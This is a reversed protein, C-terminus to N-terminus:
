NILKKILKKPTSPEAFGCSLLGCRGRGGGFRDFLRRDPQGAEVGEPLRGLHAPRVQRLRVKRDVLRHGLGADDQLGKVPEAPKLKYFLTKNKKTASAGSLYSLANTV